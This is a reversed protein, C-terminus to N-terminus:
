VVVSVLSDSIYSFTHFAVSELRLLNNKTFPLYFQFYDSCQNGIENGLKSPRTTKLRTERGPKISYTLHVM